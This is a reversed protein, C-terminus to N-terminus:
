LIRSFKVIPEPLSTCAPGLVGSITSIHSYPLDSLRGLKVKRYIWIVM